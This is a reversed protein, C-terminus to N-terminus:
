RRDKGGTTNPCRKAQRGSRGVQARGADSPYDCKWHEHAQQHLEMEIEIGNYVAQIM